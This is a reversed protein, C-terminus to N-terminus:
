SRKKTVIKLEVVTNASIFEWGSILEGGVLLLSKEFPPPYVFGFAKSPHNKLPPTCLVSPNQQTKSNTKNGRFM